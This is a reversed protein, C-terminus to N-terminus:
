ERGRSVIEGGNRLKQAICNVIIRIRTLRKIRIRERFDSM